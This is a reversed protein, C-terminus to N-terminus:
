LDAFLDDLVRGSSVPPTARHFHERGFLRRQLPEPVSAFMDLDSLQSRHAYLARMKRDFHEAVDLV